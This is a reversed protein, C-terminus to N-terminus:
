PEEEFVEQFVDEVLIDDAMNIDPMNFVTGHNKLNKVMKDSTLKKTHSDSVKTPNKPKRHKTAIKHLIHLLQDAHATFGSTELVDIASNVYDVAQTIDSLDQNSAKKVLQQHMLEVIENELKPKLM